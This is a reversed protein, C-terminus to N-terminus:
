GRPNNDLWIVSNRIQSVTARPEISEGEEDVAMVLAKCAIPQTPFYTTMFFRTDQDMNILGEEDCYMVDGNLLSPAEFMRCDILDYIERYDGKYIVEKVEKNHPDILIVNM